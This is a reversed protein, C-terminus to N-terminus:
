KHGHAEEPRGGTTAEAGGPKAAPIESQGGGGATLDLAEVDAEEPQYPAEEFQANELILDIVKREIVQNRLVDMSGGKELKARVRRPSENSQRAILDIEADYDKEDADIEEAEAIRELIFHEKLAQATSARSNQRLVNEHAQIEDDSFGSRQLELVARQLERQSQRQLLGPPLDWNAAVTLAATIQERARQRQQYEMRRQLADKIADRLDAELEFGGLESLLEANLEPKELRKVELVEFIAAVKGGRLAANPADETLQAEGRRTEGGRVGVMLKDFDEIKGDRFSLTPRVRIVEEPAAALKQGEHEFRLNTSIYDGSEAPGDYPVLRGRNTLLKELSRDIDEATFEHVPKQIKLGKWKPLDFEPRVELDFEFSMPGEAPVEVADLDIDPESIASLDQEEHIQTLSDMLLAGKVRQAVDKHFRHEILKRPAHGPRFGPVQATPMMESYEKDFYREIDERAVSVTIHRECASRPDVKVELHLKPVEEGEAPAGSGSQQDVLAESSALADEPDRKEIDSM